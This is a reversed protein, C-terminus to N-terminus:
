EEIKWFMNLNPFEEGIMDMGDEVSETTLDIVMESTPEFGEFHFGETSESITIILENM